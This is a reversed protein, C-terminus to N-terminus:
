LEKRKAAEKRKNRQKIIKLNELISWRTFTKAM